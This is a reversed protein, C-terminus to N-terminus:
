FFVWYLIIYFRFKVNRFSFDELRTLSFYLGESINPSRRNVECDKNQRYLVPPHPSLFKTGQMIFVVAVPPCPVIQEQGVSIHNTSRIIRKTVHSWNFKSMNISFNFPILASELWWRSLICDVVTGNLRWIKNYHMLFSHFRSNHLVKLFLDKM